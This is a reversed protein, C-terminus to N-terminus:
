TTPCQWINQMFCKPKSYLMIWSSCYLFCSLIADHLLFCKSWKNDLLEWQAIAPPKLEIYHQMQFTQKVLFFLTFSNQMCIASFYSVFFHLLYINSLFYNFFYSLLCISCALLAVYSKTQLLWNLGSDVWM